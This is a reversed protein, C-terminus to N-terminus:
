LELSIDENRPPDTKENECLKQYVKELLTDVGSPDSPNSDLWGKVIALGANCYEEFHKVSEHLNVDKLCDGKQEEILALLYIFGDKQDSSYTELIIDITEGHLAERKGESYGVMAAFVMLDKIFQFITKNGSNLRAILEDYTRERKVGITRWNIQQESM